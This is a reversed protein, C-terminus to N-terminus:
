NFVLGFEYTCTYTRAHTRAHTHAHTHAYTGSGLARVCATVPLTHEGDGRGLGAMFIDLVPQSQIRDPPPQALDYRVLFRGAPRTGAEIRNDLRHTGGGGDGERGADMKSPLLSPTLTAIGPSRTGNISLGNQKICVM